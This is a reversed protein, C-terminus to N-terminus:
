PSPAAALRKPSLTSSSVAQTPALQITEHHRGWFFYYTLGAAAAVGATIFGATSLHHMSLSCDGELQNDNTKVCQNGSFENDSTRNIAVIGGGIGLGTGVLTVASALWLPWSPRGLQLEASMMQNEPFTLTQNWARRQPHTVQVQHSGSPVAIEGLPTNGLPHGGVSVVAGPIDTRMKMLSAGVLQITIENKASPSTKITQTVSKYGALEMTVQHQGENVDIMLPSVGSPIGDIEVKAGPPTTKIQLGLQMKTNIVVPTGPEAKVQTEYPRYGSLKLV